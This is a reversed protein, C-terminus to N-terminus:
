SQTYCVSYLSHRWIFGSSPFTIFIYIILFLYSVFLRFRDLYLPFSLPLTNLPNLDVWQDGCMPVLQPYAERSVAPLLETRVNKLSFGVLKKWCQSQPGQTQQTVNKRWNTNVQLATVAHGTKLHPCFLSPVSGPFLWIVKPGTSEWSYHWNVESM